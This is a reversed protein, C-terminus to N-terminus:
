KRKRVTATKKKVAGGRKYEIKSENEAVYKDVKEPTTRKTRTRVLDGHKNYKRKIVEASSPGAYGYVYRTETEKTGKGIKRPESKVIGVGRYDIDRYTAGGKQQKKLSQKTQKARQSLASPGKVKGSVKINKNAGPIALERTPTMIKSRLSEAMPDKLEVKEGWPYSKTLGGNQKKVLSKTAGGKKKQGIQYNPYMENLADVNARNIRTENMKAREQARRKAEEGEYAKMRNEYQQKALMQKNYNLRANGGKQKKALTKVSGGKKQGMLDKVKDKVGFANKVYAATGAGAAALGAGIKTITKGNESWFKRRANVRKSKGYQCGKQAKPLATKTTKM